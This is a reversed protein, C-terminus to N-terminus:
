RPSTGSRPRPSSPRGTSGPAPRRGASRSSRWSRARPGSASSARGCRPPTAGSSRGSGSPRPTWSTRGGARSWTTSSPRRRRWARRWGSSRPARARGRDRRARRRAHGDPDRREVVAGHERRREPPRERRAGPQRADRHGREREHEDVDRLRDPLRRPRVSRRARGRPGPRRGRRDRRGHRRRPPRPGQECARRRGQRDGAGRYVPAPVPASSIPFNEKARQTQAGYLASSPVQVPGLSDTETRFDPMPFSPCPSPRGPVYRPRAAGTRVLRLSSPRGASLASPTSLFPLTSPGGGRRSGEVGEM